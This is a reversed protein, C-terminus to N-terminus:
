DTKFFSSASFSFGVGGGTTGFSGACTLADSRTGIRFALSGNIEAGAGTLGDWDGGPSVEACFGTGMGGALIMAKLPPKPYVHRAVVWLRVGGGIWDMSALGLGALVWIWHLQGVARLFAPLDNGYLLTVGFGALSAVAFVEFGRLLLKPTLLRPPM